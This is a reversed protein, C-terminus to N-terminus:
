FRILKIFRIVWNFQYIFSRILIMFVMKKVCLCSIRKHLKRFQAPQLHHPVIDNYLQSHSSHPEAHITVIPTPTLYHLHLVSQNM